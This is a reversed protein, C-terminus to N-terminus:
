TSSASQKRYVSPTCEFRKKFATYFASRANFGSSAAIDTVSMDTTLLLQAAEEARLRNVYEFFTENLNTNLTQSLYHPSTSLQSALSALSLAADKYSQETEMLHRLKSEIRARHDETMASHAYRAEPVTSAKGNHENGDHEDSASVVPPIDTQDFSPKQQIGWLAPVWIILADLLGHVWRPVPMEKGIYSLADIAAFCWFVVLLVLLVSLWNLERHEVSSYLEYLRFRYRKIRFFVLTLYVPAIVIWSLHSIVWPVVIQYKQDTDVDGNLMLEAQVGDPALAFPIVCLISLLVPIGHWGWQTIPVPHEPDTVARVYLWLAAIALYSGAISLLSVPHPYELVQMLSSLQTVLLGFFFVLLPKHWHKNKWHLLLQTMVLLCQGFLLAEFVVAISNDSPM